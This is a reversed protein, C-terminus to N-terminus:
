TESNIFDDHIQQALTKLAEINQTPPHDSFNNWYMVDDYFIRFYGTKEAPSKALCMPLKDHHTWELMMIEKHNNLVLMTHEYTNYITIDTATRGIGM